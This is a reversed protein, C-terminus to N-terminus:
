IYKEMLITDQFNNNYFLEDYNKGTDVFGMKKYFSHAPINDAVVELKIKRFIINKELYKLLENFLNEAVGQKQFNPKVYMSALNVIHATKSKNNWKAGISGILKNGDFAYLMICESENISDLILQKWYDDPKELEEEYTSAFANPFEKLSELRLEKINEWENQKPKRIAINM